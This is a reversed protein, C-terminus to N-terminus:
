IGVHSIEMTGTVTGKNKTTKQKQAGLSPEDILVKKLNWVTTWQSSLTLFYFYLVFLINPTAFEVQKQFHNSKEALCIIAEM